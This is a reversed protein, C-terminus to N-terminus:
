LDQERLDLAEPPPIEKFKVEDAVQKKYEKSRRWISISHTSVGALKALRKGTLEKGCRIAMADIYAALYWKNPRKVFDFAARHRTVDLLHALLEILETTPPHLAIPPTTTESPSYGEAFDYYNPYDLLALAVDAIELRSMLGRRRVPSSEQATTKGKPLKQLESMLWTAIRGEIEARDVGSCLVADGDATLGRIGYFAALTELDTFGRRARLKKSLSVRHVCATDGSRFSRWGFGAGRTSGPPRASPTKM